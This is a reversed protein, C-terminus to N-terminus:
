VVSIQAEIRMNPLDIFKKVSHSLFIPKLLINLENLVCKVYAALDKSVLLLRGQNELKLREPVNEDTTTTTLLSFLTLRAKRNQEKYPLGCILNKM